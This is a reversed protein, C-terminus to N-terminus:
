GPAGRGGGRGQGRPGSARAPLAAVPTSGNPATSASDAAAQARSALTMAVDVRQSCSDAGITLRRAVPAFAVLDPKLTVTTAGDPPAPIKLAYSGDLGSSSIDLPKDDAGAISVVVGPLPARGSTVTGSVTCMAPAQARPLAPYLVAAVLGLRVVARVVM